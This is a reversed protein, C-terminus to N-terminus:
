GLPALEPSGVAAAAAVVARRGSLAAEEGGLWGTAFGAFFADGAGNTDVIHEVPESPIEIWGESTLISAGRAGHTCLVVRTGAANRDEAFARWREMATSSLQLYAAADIFDGHYPNAGDYDHIDIWLEVGARRLPALFGRCHEFITVAVLDADVARGVLAEHDVPMDLTGTEAFISLREGDRDMLNVHRMTGAPDHETLLEIGERAFRERVRAGPADDGLLTWLTVDWGLRRLNLAKGAGSSGVTEHSARAFITQPRADPLADLYVMHNWSAGGLILAKM